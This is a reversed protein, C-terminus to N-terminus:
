AVIEDLALLDIGSQHLHEVIDAKGAEGIDDRRDLQRPVEVVARVVDDHCHRGVTGRHVMAFALGIASSVICLAEVLDVGALQEATIEAAKGVSLTEFKRVGLTLADEIETIVGPDFLLADGDGIEVAAPALVEPASQDFRDRGPVTQYLVEVVLDASCVGSHKSESTRM